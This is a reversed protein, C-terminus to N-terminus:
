PTHDSSPKERGNSRIRGTRQQNNYPAPTESRQYVLQLNSRITNNPTILFTPNRLSKSLQLGTQAMLKQKEDETPYPHNIHDNLWARLKDTTEKPLNGRRKRQRNEGGAENPDSGYPFGGSSARGSYGYSTNASFPSREHSYPHTASHGSTSQARPQQYGYALQQAFPHSSYETTASTPTSHAASPMYRATDLAYDSWTAPQQMVSPRSDSGPRSLTPLAPLAPRRPSEFRTTAQMPALDRVGTYPSTRPTPTQTYRYDFASAESARGYPPCAERTVEQPISTSHFPRPHATDRPDVDDDDETSMRRRKHSPESTFPGNYPAISHDLSRTPSFSNSTPGAGPHQLIEPVAKKSILFLDSFSHVLM